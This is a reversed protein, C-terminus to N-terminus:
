FVESVFMPVIANLSHRFIMGFQKKGIRETEPRGCLYDSIDSCVRVRLCNEM